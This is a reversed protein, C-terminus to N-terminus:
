PTEIKIMDKYDGGSKLIAKCSKLSSVLRNANPMQIRHVEKNNADLVIMREAEKMRELFLVQREAAAAKLEPHNTMDPNNSKVYIELTEQRTLAPSFILVYRGASLEDEVALIFFNGIQSGDSRVLRVARAEVDQRTLSHSGDYPVRLEIYDNPYLLMGAAVDFDKGKFGTGPAVSQYNYAQCYQTDENGILWAGAMSQMVLIASSMIIM